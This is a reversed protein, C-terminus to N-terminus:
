DNKLNIYFAAKIVHNIRDVSEDPELRWTDVAYWKICNYFVVYFWEYFIYIIMLSFWLEYSIFLVFSYCLPNQDLNKPLCCKFIHLLHLGKRRRSRRSEVVGDLDM